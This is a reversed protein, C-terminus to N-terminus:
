GNVPYVICGMQRPCDWNIGTKRPSIVLLAGTLGRLTGTQYVIDDGWFYPIWSEHEPKQTGRPLYQSALIVRNLTWTLAGSM